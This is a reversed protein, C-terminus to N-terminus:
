VVHLIFFTERSDPTLVSVTLTGRRSPTFSVRYHGHSTRTSRLFRWRREGAWRARALVRGDARTSSGPMGTTYGSITFVSGLPATRM